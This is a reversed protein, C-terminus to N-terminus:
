VFIKAWKREDHELGNKICMKVQRIYYYVLWCQELVVQQMKADKKCMGFTKIKLSFRNKVIKSTEFLIRMLYFTFLFLLHQTIKESM